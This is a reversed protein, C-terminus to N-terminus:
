RHEALSVLRLCLNGGARARAAGLDAPTNVNAFLLEPPGFRAVEEVHLFVAADLTAVLRSLRLEGADLQREVHPLVARPYYACLPEPGAAGVPIAAAGACEGIARLHALFDASVFPMDWAVVLAAARSRSLASHLGVLSGREPRTDTYSAVGSVSDRIAPDNTILFREDVGGALADLVRDVVRRGDILELGKPAGGFRANAGGALVAGSCHREVM